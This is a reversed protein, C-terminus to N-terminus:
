GNNLFLAFWLLAVVECRRVTLDRNVFFLKSYTVHVILVPEKNLCNKFCFFITFLVSECCCIVTLVGETFCLPALFILFLIM